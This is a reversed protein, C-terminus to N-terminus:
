RRIGSYAGRSLSLVPQPVSKPMPDVVLGHGDETTEVTGRVHTFRGEITSIGMYRVVFEVWSRATDITWKM